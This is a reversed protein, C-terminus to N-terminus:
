QIFKIFIKDRCCFGDFVNAGIESGFDLTGFNRYIQRMGTTIIILISSILTFHLCFKRQVKAHCWRESHIVRASSHLRTLGEMLREGGRLKLIHTNLKM